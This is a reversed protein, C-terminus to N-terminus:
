RASASGDHLELGHGFPYRPTVCRHEYGRYGMFLGEGYRLEGNEGPFNDHSPSHELRM